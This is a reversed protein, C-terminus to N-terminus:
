KSAGPLEAVVNGILPSDINSVALELHLEVPVAKDVLRWLRNYHEPVLMVSPPALPSDPSQSAAAEAFVIGGTGRKDVRLVEAVGEARLFANLADFSREHREVYEWLMEVPLHQMFLRRKKADRPFRQIPWEIKPPVGLEPPEIVSTMDKDDLRHMPAE